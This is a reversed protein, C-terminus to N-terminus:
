LQCWSGWIGRAFSLVCDCIEVVIEVINLLLEVM